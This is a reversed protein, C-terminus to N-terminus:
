NVAIRDAFKKAVRFRILTKSKIEIREGTHPSRGLRIKREITVLRGIGPIVFVGKARTEEIAIEALLAFFAKTQAVTLPLAKAFHQVLEKRTLPKVQFRADGETIASMMQRTRRFQLM